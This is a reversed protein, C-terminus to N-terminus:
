TEAWVVRGARQGEGAGTVTRGDRSARQRAQQTGAPHGPLTRQAPTRGSRVMATRIGPDAGGDRANVQGVTLDVM